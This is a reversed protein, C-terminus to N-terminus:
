AWDRGTGWDLGAGWSYAWGRKFPHETRETDAAGPTGMGSEGPHTGHGTGGPIRIVRPTVLEGMGAAEVVMTGGRDRVGQVGAGPAGSEEEGINELVGMELEERVGM